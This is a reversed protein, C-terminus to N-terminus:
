SVAFLKLLLFFKMGSKELSATANLNQIVFSGNSCIIAMSFLQQKKSIISQLHIGCLSTATTASDKDTMLRCITKTALFIFEM